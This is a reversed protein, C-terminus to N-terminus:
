ACTLGYVCPLLYTAVSYSGSRGGEGGGGPKSVQRLCQYVGGGGGPFRCENPRLVTCELSYALNQSTQQHNTMWWDSRIYM